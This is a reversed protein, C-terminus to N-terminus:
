KKLLLNHFYSADQRLVLLIYTFFSWWWSIFIFQEQNIAFRFCWLFVWIHSPLQEDMHNYYPSLLSILWSSKKFFLLDMLGHNDWCKCNFHKFNASVHALNGLNISTISWKIFRLRYLVQSLWYGVTPYEKPKIMLSIRMLDGGLWWECWWSTIVHDSDLQCRCDIM